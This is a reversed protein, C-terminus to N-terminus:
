STAHGLVVPLFEELWQTKEQCDPCVLIVMWEKQLEQRRQESITDINVLEVGPQTYMEWVTMRGCVRTMTSCRGCPYGSEPGGHLLDRQDPPTPPAERGGFQIYSVNPDDYEDQDAPDHGLKWRHQRRIKRPDILLSRRLQASTREQEERLRRAREARQILRRTHADSCSM